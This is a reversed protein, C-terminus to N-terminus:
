SVGPLRRRLPYDAIVVRCPGIPRAAHPTNPPIVAAGGPGLRQEVGAISLVIEGDVVHWVEEQEHHHQHLPPAGNAIDYHSFTMNESHFFRASWGPLPEAAIMESPELFPM